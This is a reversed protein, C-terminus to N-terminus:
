GPTCTAAAARSSRTSSRTSSAPSCGSRTRTCQTCARSARCRGTSTPCPATGCTPKWRSACSRATRAAAAVSCTATPGISATCRPRSCARTRPSPPAPATGPSPRTKAACHVVSGGSTRSSSTAAARSRSSSTASSRARRDRRAGFGAGAVRPPLVTRPLADGRSLVDLLPLRHRPVRRAHLSSARARRAVRRHRRVAGHVDSGDSGERTRHGGDSTERTSRAENSPRAAAHTRQVVSRRSPLRDAPRRSGRRRTDVSASRDRCPARISGCGLFAVTLPGGSKKM